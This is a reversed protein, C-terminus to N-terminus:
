PNAEMKGEGGKEQKCEMSITLQSTKVWHHDRIYM